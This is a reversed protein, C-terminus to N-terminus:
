FKLRFIKGTDLMRAYQGEIKFRCGLRQLDELSVQPYSEAADASTFNDQKDNDNDNDNDNDKVRKVSSSVSTLIDLSTDFKDFNEFSKESDEQCSIVKKDVMERKKKVDSSLNSTQKVFNTLSESNSKSMEDVENSMKDLETLNSVEQCSTLNDLLYPFEQRIIKVRNSITQRTTGLKVAIQSQNFGKNILEAIKDLQQSAIKKNQTAEVRKDYNDKNKKSRVYVPEMLLNITFDDSSIQGTLYVEMFSIALEGALAPNQEFIKKVQLFDTKVFSATDRMEVENFEKIM